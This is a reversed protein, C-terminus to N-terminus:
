KPVKPDGPAHMVLDDDWEVTGGVANVGRHVSGTDERTTCGQLLILVMCACILEKTWRMGM